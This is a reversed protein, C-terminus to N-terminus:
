RTLPKLKVSSNSVDGFTDAYVCGQRLNLWWLADSSPSLSLNVYKTQKSIEPVPAHLRTVWPSNFGVSTVIILIFITHTESTKQGFFQTLTQSMHTRFYRLNMWLILLSPTLRSFITMPYRMSISQTLALDTLASLVTKRTSAKPCAANFRFLLQPLPWFHSLPSTSTFCITICFQNYYFTTFLAGDFNILPIPFNQSPLPLKLTGREWSATLGLIHSLCNKMRTGLSIEDRPKKKDSWGSGSIQYRFTGARAHSTSEVRISIGESQILHPLPDGPLVAASASWM